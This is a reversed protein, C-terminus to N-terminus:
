KGKLFLFCALLPPASPTHSLPDLASQVLLLASGPMLIKLLGGISELTHDPILIVTSSSGKTVWNRTNLTSSNLFLKSLGTLIPCYILFHPPPNPLYFRLLDTSVVSILCQLCGTFNWYFYYKRLIFEGTLVCANFVRRYCCQAMLDKYIGRTHGLFNRAMWWYPPVSIIGPRFRNQSSTRTVKGPIGDTQKLTMSILPSLSSKEKLSTLLLKKRHASFILSSISADCLCPLVM